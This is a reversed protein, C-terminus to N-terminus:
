GFTRTAVNFTLTQGTSTKLTLVGENAAAITLPQREGAPTGYTGVFTGNEASGLKQPQLRVVVASEVPAENPPVRKAGAWVIYWKGDALGVWHGTALFVGSMGAPGGGSGNEIGTVRRPLTGTALAGPKHKARAREKAEQEQQPSITENLNALYRCEKEQSAIKEKLWQEGGERESQTFPRMCEQFFSSTANSTTLAVTLGGALLLALLVASVRVRTSKAANRM